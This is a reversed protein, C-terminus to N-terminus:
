CYGWLANSYLRNLKGKSITKNRPQQYLLLLGSLLESYFSHRHIFLNQETYFLPSHLYPTYSM